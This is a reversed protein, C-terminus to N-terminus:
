TCAMYHILRFDFQWLAVTKIPVMLLKIGTSGSYM